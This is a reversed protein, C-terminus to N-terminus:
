APRERGRRVQDVARRAVHSRRGLPHPQSVPLGRRQTPLALSLGCGGDLVQALYPAQRWPPSSRTRIIRKPDFTSKPTTKDTAM